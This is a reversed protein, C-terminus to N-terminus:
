IMISTRSQWSEMVPISSLYSESEVNEAVEDPAYDWIGVESALTILQDKTIVHRPVGLWEILTVLQMVAMLCYLVQLVMGLEMSLTLFFHTLRSRDPHNQWAPPVLMRMAWFM